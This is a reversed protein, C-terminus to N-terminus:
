KCTSSTLGGANSEFAVNKFRALCINSLAAGSWTKPASPDGNTELNLVLPSAFLVGSKLNDKMHCDSLKLKLPCAVSIGNGDNNNLETSELRVEDAARHPGDFTLGNKRNKNVSCGKCQLLFRLDGYQFIGTNNNSLDCKEMQLEVRNNEGLMPDVNKVVFIGRDGNARFSCESLQLKAGNNIFLGHKLNADFRSSRVTGRTEPAFLTFGYEGNGSFM